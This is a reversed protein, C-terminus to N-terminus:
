IGRALQALQAVSGRFRRLQAHSILDPNRHLLAELATEGASLCARVLERLTLSRGAVDSWGEKDRKSLSVWAKQGDRSLRLAYTGTLPAIEEEGDASLLYGCVASLNWLFKVVAVECLAGEESVQPSSGPKLASKEDFEIFVCGRLFDLLYEDRSGNAVRENAEKGLQIRVRFPEVGEKRRRSGPNGMHTGGGLAALTSASHADSIDM